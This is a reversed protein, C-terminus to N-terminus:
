KALLTQPVSTSNLVINILSHLIVDVKKKQYYTFKLKSNPTLLLLVQNVSLWVERLRSKKLVAFCFDWTIVLKVEILFRVSCKLGLSPLPLTKLVWELSKFLTVQKLLVASSVDLLLREVVLLLSYM